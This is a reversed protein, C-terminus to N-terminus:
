QEGLKARVMRVLEQIRARKVMRLTAASLLGYCRKRKVPEPPREPKVDMREAVIAPDQYRWSPLARSREHEM